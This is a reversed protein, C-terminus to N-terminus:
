CDEHRYYILFTAAVPAAVVFATTFCLFHIM